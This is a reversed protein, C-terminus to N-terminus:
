ARGRTLWRTLPALAVVLQNPVLAITVILILSYQSKLTTIGNKGNDPYYAQSSVGVHMRWAHHTLASAAAAYPVREKETDAM